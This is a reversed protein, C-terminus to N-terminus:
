FESEMGACILTQEMGADRPLSPWASKFPCPSSLLPSSPSLLLRHLALPSSLPPPHPSLGLLFAPTGASGVPLSSAPLFSFSLCLSGWLASFGQSAPLSHPSASPLPPSLLLALPLLSLQLHPPQPLGFGPPPPSISTLGPSPSLFVFFSTCPHSSLLSSISSSLSPSGNQPQHPIALLLSAPSSFSPPLFLYPSHACYPSHLSLSLEACPLAPMPMVIGAPLARASAPPGSPTNIPSQPPHVQWSSPSFGPLRQAHISTDVSDVM